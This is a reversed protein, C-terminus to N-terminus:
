GYSVAGFPRIGPSLTEELVQCVLTIKGLKQLPTGSPSASGEVYFSQTYVGPKLGEKINVAFFSQYVSGPLSQFAFVGSGATSFPAANPPIPLPITAIGPPKMWSPWTVTPIVGAPSFFTPWPTFAPPLSLYPLGPFTFSIPINIQGLMSTALQVLNDKLAELWKVLIFFGDSIKGSADSFAQRMTNVAEALVSFDFSPIAALAPLKLSLYQPLNPLSITGLEPLSLKPLEPWAIAPITIVKSLFSPLEFPNIKSILNVFWEIPISASLDPLSIKIKAILDQLLTNLSMQAMAGMASDGLQAFLAILNNLGSMVDPFSFSFSPAPISPMGVSPIDLTAPNPISPIGIMAIGMPFIAPFVSGMFNVDCSDLWDALEETRKLTVNFLPPKSGHIISVPVIKGTAKDPRVNGLMLTTMSEYGEHQNAVSAAVLPNPDPILVSPNSNLTLNEM